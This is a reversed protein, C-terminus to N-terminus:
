RVTIKVTIKAMNEGLMGFVTSLDRLKGGCGPSGEDGM